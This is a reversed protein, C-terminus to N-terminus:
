DQRDEQWIRIVLFDCYVQFVFFALALYVTPGYANEPSNYVNAVMVNLQDAIVIKKFLGLLILRLGRSINNWQLDYKFHFQPFLQQPREIPGAVLQPFYMVYLAYLGFHTIAKQNGKYVELTYSMAQFTHFSLGIPLLISLHSLKINGFNFAALATEFNEIFFNYYKFICLVGINAGLSLILWAKKRKGESKEILLGAAYDFVITTALILIYVPVFVMYFYCSAALLWFWRFRYPLIYYVAIIVPLFVLYSISNFLM